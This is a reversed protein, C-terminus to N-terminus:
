ECLWLSREKDRGEVVTFGLKTAKEISSARFVHQMDDDDEIFVPGPGDGFYQCEIISQQSHNAIWGLVDYIGRSLYPIVSLCLIVDFTPMLEGFYGEIDRCILHIQPFRGVTRLAIGDIVEKSKDIGIVTTAGAQAVYLLMDGAGCGIDLVDKGRWDIVQMMEWMEPSRANIPALLAQEDNTDAM